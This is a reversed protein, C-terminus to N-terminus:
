MCKIVPRMKHIHLWHLNKELNKVKRMYYKFVFSVRERIIFQGDNDVLAVDGTDFWGDKDICSRDLKQM